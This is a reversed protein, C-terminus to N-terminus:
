RLKHQDANRISYPSYNRLAAGPWVREVIRVEAAIRSKSGARDAVVGGNIPVQKAVAAAANHMAPLLQSGVACSVHQLADHDVTYWTSYLVHFLHISNFSTQWDWGGYCLMLPSHPLMVSIHRCRASPPSASQSSLSFLLAALSVPPLAALIAGRESGTVKPYSRSSAIGSSTLAREEEYAAHKIAEPTCWLLKLCDFVLVDNCRQRGDHGGFVIMWRGAFAVATHATRATPLVSLTPIPSSANASSPASAADTSGTSPAPSAAVPILRWQQRSVDLAFLDSRLGSPKTREASSSCRRRSRM